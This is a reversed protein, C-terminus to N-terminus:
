AALPPTKFTESIGEFTARYIRSILVIHCIPTRVSFGHVKKTWFPDNRRKPVVFILFSKRPTEVYFPM